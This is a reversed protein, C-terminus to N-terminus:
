RHSGRVVEAHGVLGVGVVTRGAGPEGAIAPVGGSAARTEGAATTTPRAARRPWRWSRASSGGCSRRAGSRAGAEHVLKGPDGFSRRLVELMQALTADDVHGDVVEEFM